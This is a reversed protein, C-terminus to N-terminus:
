AEKLKPGVALVVNVLKCLGVEIRQKEEGKSIAQFLGQANRTRRTCATHVM